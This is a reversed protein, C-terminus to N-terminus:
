LSQCCAHPRCLKTGSTSEASCSTSVFTEDRAGFHDGFSLWEGIFNTKELLTENPLFVVRKLGPRHGSPFPYCLFFEIINKSTDQTKTKVEYHKTQAKGM